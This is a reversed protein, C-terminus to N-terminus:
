GPHNAACPKWLAIEATEKIVYYLLQLNAILYHGCTWKLKTGTTFVYRYLGNGDAVKPPRITPKVAQVRLDTLPM